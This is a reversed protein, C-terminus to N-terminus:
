LSRRERQHKEIAEAADHVDKTTVSQFAIADSPTLSQKLANISAEFIQIATDSAM